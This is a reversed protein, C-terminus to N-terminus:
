RTVPLRTKIQQFIARTATSRNLTYFHIGAVANDLLDNCQETAHYVGLHRVAEADDEVSEIRALLPAPITAGCMTTFRKIQKVSLVPMIGAIIPVTIGAREARDRFAYFDANDFFLQTILIDVGADVKRKLNDMDRRVDKCEPHCEPYCAAAICFDYRERIFAVLENAFAFGGETKVFRQSGQPPDGRLALVNEIGSGKLEDLVAAIEARTADVCTLHAMTEIALDNKIREVLNVTHRRTSGGAGYTVSVYTPALPKLAGITKFLDWFGIEDKPPFFEFSLAPRPQNLADRIRM